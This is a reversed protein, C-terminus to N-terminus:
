CAILTMDIEHMCMWWAGAVTLQKESEVHAASCLRPLASSTLSECGLEAAWRQM